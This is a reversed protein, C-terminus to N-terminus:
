KLGTLNIIAGVFALLIAAVLGYVVKKIPDFESKTVFVQDLKDNIDCILSKIEKHDTDNQKLQQEIVALRTNTTM